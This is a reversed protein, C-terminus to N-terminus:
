KKGTQPEPPPGFNLTLNAATPDHKKKRAKKKPAAKKKAKNEKDHLGAAVEEQYRKQNLDLLRALVEDHVEEPWRYRYPKKKKGWTEEDIEYDLLFECDTPIDTWGYADLVARDMDAHLERLKLIEPDREEPDHFHTLVSTVGEKRTLQLETRYDQYCRGVADLGSCNEWDPPFPFTSFVSTNTYRLDGRLSSAFQRAWVDHIRSQLVSLMGWKNSAFVYLADSFTFENKLRVFALSRSTRALVVVCDLEQTATELAWRYQGLQWWYTRVKKNWGNTPKKSIRDPKVLNIIRELTFPFDSAVPESSPKTSDERTLPWDRFNILWREPKMDPITNLDSGNLFRSLLVEAKPEKSLLEDKEKKDLFFGDGLVISGQFSLNENAKLLNTETATRHSPRLFENIVNVSEDDLLYPPAIGGSTLWIKAARVTALGPWQFSREAQYITLGDNLVQRLGVIATDGESITETALFGLASRRARGLIKSARLLFYASLDATGRVGRVGGAVLNVAFARWPGSFATELKLGGLFPPNGIILDFGPNARGFVEPFEIEWHFPPLPKEGSRLRGVIQDLEHRYTADAKWAVIKSFYQDRLEQRAKPKDAGFFAAIALDGILRADMLANEAQTWAARKDDYAGEDLGHLANRFGLVRELDERMQTEIWDVQDSQKPQWHFGAIQERTLGVLSDGHKLAHDLFTFAHDRALTVLWLSLKALSAAFPNKDVGYLCRQAVLRRAHLLPEEDPPVDPMADHVQWAKVLHTALQRCAEVLFAGSGMAPDCVKLELIQEPTPREGLAEIVPRLTTRVIPETLERPTYHSGTRRREEGPQLYLSMPAMLRPTGMADMCRPSVRRALAAVVDAPTEADKLAKASAATLECEAQDKLWKKRKGGDVALLADVDIVIHKPRVAISRAMAREVEYGMMAEYVSGIQEVDLARYSLREGELILLAKLVRYVCGDSVRPAALTDLKVKQKTLSRGELFPYADPNFLRGHRTPLRFDGHGGGDYILRFLSLLWAYAGYRQDMTDPYQASDNRLRDFLGSISYNEAYVEGEPMLGEDEAYLVFILRMLLTLLGGYVHEPDDSATKDFIRHGDVPDSAQFGRLLEWLAGLVQDSLQTSVEAQYKRSDALIDLLRQGDPAGFVRHEGLLMDLAALMPRESVEVMSAVPFTLHGSSEGSPAYVLRLAEGNCLLGAPVKTERLLREFKLQPGASWGGQEDKPAADFSAGFDLAQILMLPEGDGMGDVAVFTPRLVEDYEPLVLELGEPIEPGDPTGALDEPQWDLVSELFKPLDVIGPERDEIDSPLIAHELKAILEALNESPVASAKLLAPPSVVLGVPQLLGIWAKHLKLDRPDHKAM